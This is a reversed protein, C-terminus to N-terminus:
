ENENAVSLANGARPLANRAREVAKAAWSKDGYLEVVAGYMAEARQPDSPHIEDARDLQDQVLALREGAQHDLQKSLRNIQRRALELCKGTPGAVDDRHDYLAVLAQFKAMGREPDLRTYNVAELYDREIPALYKSGGLGRARREFRKQLRHLEIETEYQRLQAARSDSPYIDLFRVIDGEAQLLSEISGDTQAVIREYLTDAAPDQLLFWVTLGVAILAVALVWTQPSIWPPRDEPTKIRDLDEQAVPTFHGGPKPPEDPQSTALDKLSSTARTEPLDDSGVPLSSTPLTGTPLSSVPLADDTEPESTSFAAVPSIETADTSLSLGRQMAELQRGLVTANPIRQRPEKELLQAIIAELTKPVDAAHRGIPDPKEVRQKHLIEPLSKGRFLPRGSLLVYFVAGLSYLDARPGVPQGSAQEPAMYEATGLVSGANTLGTNGFLRAIGFDSLKVHQDATLLLNGPKIDRHIVGRDHAHRLARCMEIGIQTVERWEFRRGRGLEGELSSGDVLEMAYFLMEDQEGFGFLRVINPHRLKRLTEIEGEFRERFTDDHSLPASLLKVAAPEGTEPRTAEYVIGMGGRGLERVIRYPGLQEIGM